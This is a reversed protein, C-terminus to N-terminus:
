RYKGEKTTPLTIKLHVKISQEGNDALMQKAEFMSANISTKSYTDSLFPENAIAPYRQTEEESNESLNDDDSRSTNILYDLNSSDGDDVGAIQDSVYEPYPEKDQNLFELTSIETVKRALM